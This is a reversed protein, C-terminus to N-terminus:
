NVEVNKGTFQSSRDSYQQFEIDLRNPDQVWFQLSNDAGTIMERPAYGGDVLTQRLNEISDTELCFHHLIGGNAAPETDDTRFVEIFTDNSAKIYFGIVEGKRTFNFLKQM